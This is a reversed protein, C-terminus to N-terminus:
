TLYKDINQLFERADVHQFDGYKKIEEIQNLKTPMPQNIYNGMVLWESVPKYKPSTYENVRDITDTILRFYKITIFEVPQQQLIGNADLRFRNLSSKWSLDLIIKATNYGYSYLDYFLQELKDYNTIKGTLAMDFDVTDAANSLVKGIVHAQYGQQEILPLTGELFTTVNKKNPKSGSQTFILKGVQFSYTM